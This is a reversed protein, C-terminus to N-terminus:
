YNYKRTLFKARGIIRIDKLQDGTYVQDEHNPNAPKLMITNSEPYHYFKKLTIQDKYCVAGIEGNELHETKDLLVIDGHNIGVGIMSDGEAELCYDCTENVEIWEMDEIAEMPDGCAIKGLKPATLILEAEQYDWGMLAVPSINLAEAIINFKEIPLNKIYGTEYRQLTSKSIGTKDALEQYSMGMRERKQKIKTAIKLLDKEM